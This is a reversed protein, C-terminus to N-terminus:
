GCSSYGCSCVDCGSEHRLPRGCEPCKKTSDTITMQSTEGLSEEIARGIADPCSLVDIDKNSNRRTITSLCRIGKLQGIIVRPDIGSRIAASAIRCTAESQAPCGGIKGVSSFVECLGKEDANVTVYLKGCGMTYKTTEGKTKRSRPRPKSENSSSITSKRAATLVQNKRCGNRYVTIGKCGLQHAYRFIKDIDDVPTAAPLNITKSVANDVNKQFAAQIEIHHDPLVDHATVLIDVLEEPIEPIECLKTGALLKAKTNENLWGQELGLKELLPHIQIFESGDLARRKYAYSFIPEIGSSCGAIISISGTPAITTATANRMQRNYKTDWISNKWNPFCGRTKALGECVVLDDVEASSQTGATRVTKGRLQYKSCFDYDHRM